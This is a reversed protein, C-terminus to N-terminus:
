VRHRTNLSNFHSLHQNLFCIHQEVLYALTVILKNHMWIAKFFIFCGL